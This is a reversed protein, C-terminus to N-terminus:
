IFLELSQRLKRRVEELESIRPFPLCEVWLTQDIREQFVGLQTDSFLYYYSIFLANRRRGRRFSFPDCKYEFSRGSRTQEFRTLVSAFESLFLKWIGFYSQEFILRSVRKKKYRTRPFYAFKWVRPFFRKWIRREIPRVNMVSIKNQVITIIFHIRFYM